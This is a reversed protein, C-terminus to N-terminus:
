MDKVYVKQMSFGRGRVENVQSIIVFANQDIDMVFQNLKSLERASIVTLVM